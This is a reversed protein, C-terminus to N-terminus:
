SASIRVFASLLMEVACPRAFLATVRGAIASVAKSIAKSIPLRNGIVAAASLTGPGVLSPLAISGALPRSPNSVSRCCRAHRFLAEGDAAFGVFAM